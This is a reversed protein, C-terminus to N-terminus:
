KPRTAPFKIVTGEPLRKTKNPGIKSKNLNYVANLLTPNVTGYKRKVIQALTENAKTKLTKSGSVPNTRKATLKPLDDVEKFTVDLYAHGPEGARAQADCQTMTVWIMMGNMDSVTLRLLSAHEKDGEAKQWDRLMRVVTWSDQLQDHPVNLMSWGSPTRDPHPLMLGSMSIEIPIWNGPRSSTRSRLLSVDVTERGQRIDIQEPQVPFVFSQIRASGRRAAARQAAAREARAAASAGQRTTNGPLGWAWPNLLPNPADAGSRPAAGPFRQLTVIHLPPAM